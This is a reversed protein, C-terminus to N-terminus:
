DPRPEGSAGRPSAFVFPALVMRPAPLAHPAMAHLLEARMLVVDGARGCLEVGRVPVGLVQAGAFFASAADADRETRAELAAFWPDCARLAERAEKSRLKRGARRALAALVRHSGAIAVTAGGRPEVDTLLAFARLARPSPAPSIALDLHWSRSPVEWTERDRFSVLPPGWSPPEQWAGAGFAADLTAVLAPSRVCAFADPRALAQFGSPRAPSWTRPDDERMGHARALHEWIRARM